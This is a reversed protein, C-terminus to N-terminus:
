RHPWPLRFSGFKRRCGSSNRCCRRGRCHYFPRRIRRWAIRGDVPPFSLDNLGPSTRWARGIVPSGVVRLAEGHAKNRVGFSSWDRRLRKPSQLISRAAYNSAFGLPTAYAGRPRVSRKVPRKRSGARKSPAEIKATGLIFGRDLRRPRPKRQWFGNACVPRKSRGTNSVM